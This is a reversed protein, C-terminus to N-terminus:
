PMMTAMARSRGTLATLRPKRKHKPMHVTAGAPFSRVSSALISKLTIVWVLSITILQILNLSYKLIYGTNFFDNYTDLGTKENISDELCAAKYAQQAVFGKVADWLEPMLEKRGAQIQQALEENSM